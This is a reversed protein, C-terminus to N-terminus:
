QEKERKDFWFRVYVMAVCAVCAVGLGKLKWMLALPVMHNCKPCNQRVKWRQVDDSAVREVSGGRGGV